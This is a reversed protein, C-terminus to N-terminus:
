VVSKRDAEEIGAVDDFTIKQQGNGRVKHKSRGFSMLMGGGAKANRMFVFYLVGLILVFPLFQFLIPILLDPNAFAGEVDKSHLYELFDKGILKPDYNVEFTPAAGPGKETKWKESYEGVITNPKLEVRKVYGNEVYDLFDPTFNKIKDIRQMKGVMMLLSMIILGIVLWSFPGRNYKPLPKKGPGFPPKGSTQKQNPNKDM